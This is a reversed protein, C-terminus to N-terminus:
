SFFSQLTCQFHKSLLQTRLHCSVDFRAVTWLILPFGLLVGYVSIVCGAVWWGAGDNSTIFEDSSLRSVLCKRGDRKERNVKSNEEYDQINWTVEEVKQPILIDFINIHLALFVIAYYVHRFCMWKKGTFWITENRM